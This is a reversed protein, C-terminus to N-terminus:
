KLFSINNKHAHTTPSVTVHDSTISNVTIAHMAGCITCLHVRKRGALWGGAGEVAVGCMACMFVSSADTRDRARLEEPSLRRYRRHYKGDDGIENGNRIFAMCHLAFLQQDEIDSLNPVPKTPRNMRWVICCTPMRVCVSKRLAAVASAAAKNRCIGCDFDYKFEIFTFNTRYCWTGIQM